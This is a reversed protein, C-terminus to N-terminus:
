AITIEWKSWVYCDLALLIEHQIMLFCYPFDVKELFLTSHRYSQAHLFYEKSRFVPLVQTSYKLLVTM